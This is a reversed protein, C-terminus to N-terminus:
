KWALSIENDLICPDVRSTQIKTMTTPKSETFHFINKMCWIIFVNGFCSGHSPFFCMCVCFGVWVSDIFCCVTLVLNLLKGTCCQSMCYIALTILALKDTMLSSLGGDVLGTLCVGCWYVFFCLFGRSRGSGQPDSWSATGESCQQLRLSHILVRMMDGLWKNEVRVVKM